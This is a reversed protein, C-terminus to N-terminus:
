KAVPVTNYVLLWCSILLGPDNFDNPPNPRCFTFIILGASTILYGSGLRESRKGWSSAFHFVLQPLLDTGGAERDVSCDKIRM